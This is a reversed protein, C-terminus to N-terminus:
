WVENSVGGMEFCEDAERNECKRIYRSAAQRLAVCSHRNDLKKCVEAWPMRCVKRWFLAKMLDPNPDYKIYTRIEKRQETRQAELQELEASLNARKVALTATRDTFTGERRATHFAAHNGTSAAELTEINQKVVAMRSLLRRYDVLLELYDM